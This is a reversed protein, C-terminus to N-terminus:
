PKDNVRELHYTELYSGKKWIETLVEEFVWKEFNQASKLRSKTILRYVDGEPIFIM